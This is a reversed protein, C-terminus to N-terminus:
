KSLILFRGERYLVVSKLTSIALVFWLAKNAEWNIPMLGVILTIFLVFYFILELYHAKFYPIIAIVFIAVFLIIGIIGTDILVSLFTNHAVRPRGFFREVAFSYGGSGVGIVPNEKFVEFGAKWIFKRGTMSGESIETGIESFREINHELTQALKPALIISFIISVIIFAVTAYRINKSVVFYMLPVISLSVVTVIFAGRSGTLIVAFVAMPVYIMNIFTMIKSNWKNALYWAIPIGLALTTALWNHDFGETVIRKVPGGALLYINIMSIIPIFGGLVYAQLILRYEKQEKCLEWILWVMAILQIYTVMRKLTASPNISWIVSIFSWGIFLIMIWFLLPLETIRKYAIVYLIAALFVLIGIMRTFTGMGPIVIIAQWPTSFVMIWLLVFAFKRM